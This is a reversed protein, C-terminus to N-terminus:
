TKRVAGAGTIPIARPMKLKLKEFLNLKISKMRDIKMIASM